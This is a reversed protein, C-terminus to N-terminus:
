SKIKILTSNKDKYLKLMDTIIDKIEEQKTASSLKEDYVQIQQNLKQDKSYYQNVIIHGEYTNKIKDINEQRETLGIVSNYQGDTDEYYIYNSLLTSDVMNDYTSYTGSQILYIKQGKIDIDLKQKYISYVMKGCIAGCIVSLFIPTIAKPIKKKM